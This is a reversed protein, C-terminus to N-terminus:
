TGGTIIEPVHDDNRVLKIFAEVLANSFQTGSQGEIYALADEPLWAGKYPRESILAIFV